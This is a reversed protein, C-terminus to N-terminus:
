ILYNVGEPVVPPEAKPLLNGGAFAEGGSSRPVGKSEGGNSEQGLSVYAEGLNIGMRGLEARLGDLSAMLVEKVAVDAAVFHVKLKEDAFSLKVALRGLHPPDLQLDLRVIGGRDRLLTMQRAIERGLQGPLAALPLREVGSFHEPEASFLTQVGPSDTGADPLELGALGPRKGETADPLQEQLKLGEPIQDPAKPATVEGGQHAEVVPGSIVPTPSPSATHPLRIAPYDRVPPSSTGVAKVRLYVPRLWLGAMSDGSLPGSLSGAVSPDPTLEPQVATRGPYVPVVASPNTGGPHVTRGAIQNPVTPMLLEQTDPSCTLPTGPTGSVPAALRTTENLVRALAAPPEPLGAAGGTEGIVNTGKAIISSEEVAGTANLSRSTTPVMQLVPGSWATATDPQGPRCCDRHDPSLEVGVSAGELTVLQGGQPFVLIEQIVPTSMGPLQVVDQISLLHPLNWSPGEGGAVPRAAAGGTGPMSVTDALAIAEPPVPVVGSLLTQWVQEFNRLVAAESNLGAVHANDLKVKLREALGAVFTTNGEPASSGAPLVRALQESTGVLGALLGAFNGGAAGPVPREMRDMTGGCILAAVVSALGQM